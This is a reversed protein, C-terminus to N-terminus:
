DLDLTEYDADQWRLVEALRRGALVRDVRAREEDSMSVFIELWTTAGRVVVPMFVEFIQLRDEHLEDTGVEGHVLEDFELLQRAAAKIADATYAPEDEGLAVAAAAILRDLDAPSVM